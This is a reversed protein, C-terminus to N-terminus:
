RRNVRRSRFAQSRWTPAQGAGDTVGPTREATPTALQPFHRDNERDGFLFTINIRRNTYGPAFRVGQTAHFLDSNFIVARNARYPIKRVTARRDALLTRMLDARGNYSMFDWWLPANIDYVDLGGSDPDLNAEEPTIWFNVNVAAFDAHLTSGAPLSAGNKFAWVQRLPYESPLVSPLAEQLEQAIQLLLPCNFGDHFFAGLRGHGYRNATWVTSELCFARLEHLAEPSLVQDIAIVGREEHYRRDVQQWDQDGSLARAVRPTDRIHLFRNYVDGIAEEDSPGLPVQHQIGERELRAAVQEYALAFPALDIDLVGQSTLYGFQEVDHRLKQVTLFRPPRTSGPLPEIERDQPYWPSAWRLAGIIQAFESATDLDAERFLRTIQQACWDFGREGSVLERRVLPRAAQVEGKALLLQCLNRRALTQDPDHRLAERYCTEAEAPDGVCQRVWGLNNWAMAHFPDEAVAKRLLEEAERYAGRQSLRHGQHVVDSVNM